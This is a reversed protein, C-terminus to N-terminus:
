RARLGQPRAPPTTDTASPDSAGLVKKEAKLAWGPNTGEGAYAGRYEFRGKATGNFDRDYDANSTFKGMDLPPGKARSPKPYFDMSGLVLSPRNVYSASNALTDVINDRAVPASIGQDAFILNGAVLSDEPSGRVVIGTGRGYVTNNYVYARRLPLDHDVLAMAGSSGGVFVNDHLSVRGSGQFLPEGDKNEYFFNGYIEYTDSSGQGSTPFGGVLLNPRAGDAAGAPFASQAKRKIFVNHRVITRNPGAPLGAPAAYPLQWKIQANYGISDVILNGEILGAVFPWEGTSNGLYVGTGAEIITNGRIVWNWAIGRTAIAVTGQSARQGVFTCNEVVIDHTTGRANVGDIADVLASDIRLNRLTLYSNGDLQVLNCCGPDGPNVTIVAPAGSAPGQVTIRGSATGNLGRLSLLPYTGAALNLTDGPRLANILSRYNAPTANVEASFVTTPLLFSGFVVAVAAIRAIRPEAPASPM